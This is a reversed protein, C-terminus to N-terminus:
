SSRREREKGKIMGYLKSCSIAAVLIGSSVSGLWAPVMDHAGSATVIDLSMSRGYLVDMGTGLFLACAVISGIYVALAKYGMNTCVVSMTVINTAPGAMLFVLAAGPSMGKIILAAAIPISATACVYMPIGALLMIVMSMLGHGLYKSIINEPMFYTIIGGVLIGILIAGGTDKMLEGFAYTFIHRVREGITHPHEKRADCLLCEAHEVQDRGDDKGAPILDMVTGALVGSIFAAVMRFVTFIGGMLSYTAFISDVGTTPASILFSLVAGRSAGSKRLAMATPIVSCSCLPLPIGFISAKVSSLFGKGGLRRAIFRPDLFGRLLGAFLFGFLLYPAMRNLLLYSERFVGMIMAM